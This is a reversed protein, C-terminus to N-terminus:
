QDNYSITYKILLLILSYKILYENKTNFNTITNIGISFLKSKGSAIVNNNFYIKFRGFPLIPTEIKLFNKCPLELNRYGGFLLPKEKYYSPTFDEIEFDNTLIGHDKLTLIRENHYDYIEIFNKKLLKGHYKSHFVISNKHHATLGNNRSAKITYEM